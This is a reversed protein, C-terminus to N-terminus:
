MERMVSITVNPAPSAEQSIGHILMLQFCMLVFAFVFEQFSLWLDFVELNDRCSFGLKKKHWTWTVVIGKGGFFYM